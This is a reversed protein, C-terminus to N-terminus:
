SAAGFTSLLPRREETFSPMFMNECIAKDFRMTVFSASLSHFDPLFENQTKSGGWCGLNKINGSDFRKTSLTCILTFKGM